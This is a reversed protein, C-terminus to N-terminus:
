MRRPRHRAWLYPVLFAGPFLLFIWAMNLSVQALFVQDCIRCRADVPEFNGRWFLVFTFIALAALAGAYILLLPRTGVRIAAVATMMSPFAVALGIMSLVGMQSLPRTATCVDPLGAETVCVPIFSVMRLIAFNVVYIALTWPWAREDFSVQQEDFSVQQM